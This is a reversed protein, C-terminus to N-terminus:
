GSWDRMRYYTAVAGVGATHFRHFPITVIREQLPLPLAEDRGTDLWHAIHEGLASFLAVGRGNCGVLALGRPGLRNFRPMSDLTMGVYGYWRHTIAVNSAQPYLRRLMGELLAFDRASRPARFSSRGGIMLRNQPDLRWYVLLRRTDSAGHGAPLVTSAVADPLPTTAVQSSRIPVFSRALGPWLGDAYANTLLALADCTVSADGTSVRWRQNQREIRTARSRTFLRVGRTVAAGALGRVYKLPHLTGGRRDIWGGVYAESGLLRAMGDASLSEVPAGRRQWQAYRREQMALSKTDVAPQVFGGPMADCDIGLRAILDFSAATTGGAFDILAPAREPGYVAEIEDPEYKIGPNVQGGNLGSAGLGIEAAAELVVVNAGREALHIATALGAYGGGVIAVDATTDGALRPLTPSPTATAHWLSALFPPPPKAVIM